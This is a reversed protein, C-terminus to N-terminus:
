SAFMVGVGLSEAMAVLSNRYVEGEHRRVEHHTAGVILYLVDPHAAVIRPMAEIM